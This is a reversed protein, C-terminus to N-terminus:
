AIYWKGELIIKRLISSDYNRSLELMIMDFSEFKEFENKILEHFVICDSKSKLVDLFDTRKWVPTFDWSLLNETICSVEKWESNKKISRSELLVTGKNCIVRYRFDENFDCKFEKNINKERVLEIINM